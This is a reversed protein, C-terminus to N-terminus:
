PRWIWRDTGCGTAATKPFAKLEQENCQHVHKWETVDFNNWLFSQRKESFPGGFQLYIKKQSRDMNGKSVNIDNIDSINLYKWLQKTHINAHIKLNGFLTLVPYVRPQNSGIKVSRSSAPVRNSCHLHQTVTTAAANLPCNSNVTGLTVIM